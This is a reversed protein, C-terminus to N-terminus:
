KPAGIASVFNKLCELSCFEKPLTMGDKIFSMLVWSGEAHNDFTEECYDCELIESAM